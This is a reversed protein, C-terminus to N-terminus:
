TTVWHVPQLTTTDGSWLGCVLGKCLFVAEADNHSPKSPPLIIVYKINGRGTDVEPLSDVLEVSRIWEYAFM